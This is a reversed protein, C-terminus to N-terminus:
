KMKEKYAALADEVRQRTYDTGHNLVKWLYTRGLGLEKSATAISRFTVGDLTIPKKFNKGTGVSDTDGRHLASYVAEITRNNAAAAAKVSPYVVGRIRVLM